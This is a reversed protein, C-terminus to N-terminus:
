ECMRVGSTKGRQGLTFLHSKFLLSKLQLEPMFKGPREIVYDTRLVATDPTSLQDTQTKLASSLPHTPKQLRIQILPKTWDAALLGIIVNNHKPEAGESASSPATVFLPLQRLILQESSHSSFCM